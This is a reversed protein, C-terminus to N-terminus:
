IRGALIEDKSGLYFVPIEDLPTAITITEGGSGYDKENFRSNEMDAYLMYCIICPVQWYKWSSGASLPSLKPLYIEKSKSATIAVPVVLLRPGQHFNLM